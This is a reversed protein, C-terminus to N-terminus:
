LFQQNEWLTLFYPFMIVVIEVIGCEWAAVIQIGNNASLCVLHSM